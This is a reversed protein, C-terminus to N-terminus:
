QVTTEKLFFNTFGQHVEPKLAHCITEPLKRAPAIITRGTGRWTRIREYDSAL